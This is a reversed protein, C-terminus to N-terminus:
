LTGEVELYSSDVTYPFVRGSELFFAALREPIKLICDVRTIEFRSPARQFVELYGYNSM